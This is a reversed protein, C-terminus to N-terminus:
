PSGLAQCLPQFSSVFDESKLGGHSVLWGMSPQTRKLFSPTSAVKEKCYRSRGWYVGKYKEPAVPHEQEWGARRHAHLPLASSHGFTRAGM